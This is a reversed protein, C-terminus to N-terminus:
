PKGCTELFERQTDLELNLLRIAARINPRHGGKFANRSVRTKGGVTKPGTSKQWPKWNQIVVSQKVKRELTWGNKM